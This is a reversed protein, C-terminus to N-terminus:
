PTRSEEQLLDALAHIIADRTLDIWAWQGGPNVDILYHVGTSDVVFDLAAFVLGLRRMM